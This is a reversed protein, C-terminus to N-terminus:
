SNSSCSFSNTLHRRLRASRSALFFSSLSSRFAAAFFSLSSARRLLSDMHFNISLVQLFVSRLGRAYAAYEKVWSKPHREIAFGIARPRRGSWNQTILIRRNGSHERVRLPFNRLCEWTGLHPEWHTAMQLFIGLTKVQPKVTGLHPELFTTLSSAHQQHSRLKVLNQSQLWSREKNAPITASAHLHYLIHCICMHYICVYFNFICNIYMYKKGVYCSEFLPFM